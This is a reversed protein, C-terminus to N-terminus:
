GVWGADEISVTDLDICCPVNVWGQSYLQHAVCLLLCTILTLHYTDLMNDGIIHNQLTKLQKRALLFFLGIQLFGTVQWKAYPM